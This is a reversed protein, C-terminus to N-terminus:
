RTNAENFYKQAEKILSEHGSQKLWTYIIQPYSGENNAFLQVINTLDRKSEIVYELVIYTCVYM